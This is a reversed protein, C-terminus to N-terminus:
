SFGILWNGNSCVELICKTVFSWMDLSLKNWSLGIFCNRNGCAELFYVEECLELVNSSLRSLFFCILPLNQHTIGFRSFESLLLSRLSPLINELSACFDKM